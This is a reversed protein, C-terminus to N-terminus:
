PMALDKLWQTPGLVSGVVEHNRTPNTEETGHYSSWHIEEQSLKPPSYTELFNDM